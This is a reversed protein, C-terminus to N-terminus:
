IAEAFAEVEIGVEKMGKCAARLLIEESEPKYSCSNVEYSGAEFEDATPLYSLYGNTHDLTILSTDPLMERLKVTYGAFAEGPFGVIIHRGLRLALLDHARGLPRDGNLDIGDGTRRKAYGLMEYRDQLQKLEPWKKHGISGLVFQREIIDRERELDKRPVLYEDRLPLRITPSAVAVSDPTEWDAGEIGGVALDALKSGLSEAVEPSKLSVLPAQNGAPGPLFLSTGGFARELGRRAYAPYDGSHYDAGYRNTTVAHAAFRLLTGVPEGEHGRFFLGQLLSDDPPPLYLKDGDCDMASQCARVPEIEGDTFQKLSQEYLHRVNACGDTELDFGYWYTFSGLDGCPLRRCTNLLPDPIVDVAAVEVPQLRSAADRVCRSFADEIAQHDMANIHLCHNHTSFVAVNKLSTKLASAVANRFRAAIPTVLSQVDAVVLASTVGGSHLILGRVEVDDVVRKGSRIAENLSARGFGALVAHSM